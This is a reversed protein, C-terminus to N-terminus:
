RVRTVNVALRRSSVNAGERGSTAPSNRYEADSRRSRRAPTARWQRRSRRRPSPRRRDALVASAGTERRQAGFRHMLFEILLNAIAVAISPQVSLANLVALSSHVIPFMRAMRESLSTM